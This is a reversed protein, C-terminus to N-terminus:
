ANMSNGMLNLWPGDIETNDFAQKPSGKYALVANLAEADWEDPRTLVMPVTKFDRCRPAKALVLTLGQM